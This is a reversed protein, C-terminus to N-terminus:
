YSLMRRVRDTHVTRPRIYGLADIKRIMREKVSLSLDDHDYVHEHGTNDHTDILENATDEDVTRVFEFDSEDLVDRTDSADVRQILRQCTEFTGGVEVNSELREEICLNHLICCVMFIKTALELSSTQLAMQLIPFKNLLMGLSSLWFM